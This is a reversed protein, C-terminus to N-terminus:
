SSSASSTAPLSQGVAPALEYNKIDYLTIYDIKGDEYLAVYAPRPELGPEPTVFVVGAVLAWEGSRYSYHHTGRIKTGVIQM